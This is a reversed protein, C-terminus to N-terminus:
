GNVMKLSINNNNKNKLINNIYYNNIFELLNKSKICKETISRLMDFNTKSKIFRGETDLCKILLDCRWYFFLKLVFYSFVNTSQHIVCNEDKNKIFQYISLCNSTKLIQCCKNATYIVQNNLEELVMNEGDVPYYRFIIEVISAFWETYAEFLNLVNDGKYDTLTTKIPFTALFWNNLEKPIHKFDWDYLHCCEHLITKLCEEKRTIIIEIGNTVGTNIESSTFLRDKDDKVTMLEKKYDIWYITIKKPLTETNGLYNYICIRDIIKQLLSSDQKDIMMSRIDKDSSNGYILLNRNRVMLDNNWFFSYDVSIQIDVQQYIEIINILSTYPNFLLGVNGDFLDIEQLKQYFMNCLNKGYEDISFFRRFAYKLPKNLKGNYNKQYSIGKKVLNIMKKVKLLEVRKELLLIEDQKLNEKVEDLHLHLLELIDPKLDNTINTVTINNIILRVNGRIKDDLYTFIKQIWPQKILTNLRNTLITNNKQYKGLNNLIITM